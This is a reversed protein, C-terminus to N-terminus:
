RPREEPTMGPGKAAERAKQELQRRRRGGLFSEEVVIAVFLIIFLAFLIGLVKFLFM